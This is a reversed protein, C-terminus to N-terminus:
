YSQETHQSCFREGCRLPDAHSGMMASTRRCRVGLQTIGRCQVVRAPPGFIDYFDDDDDEDDDDEDDEDASDDSGGVSNGKFELGLYDGDALCHVNKTFEDFIGREKFGLRVVMEVEEPVVHTYMLPTFNMDAGRRMCLWEELVELLQAERRPRDGGDIVEFMQITPGGVEEEENYWSLLVKGIVANRAALLELLVNPIENETPGGTGATTRVRLGRNLVFMPAAYEVAHKLEVDGCLVCRDRMDEILEALGRMSRQATICMWVADCSGDNGGKHWIRLSRAGSATFVTGSPHRFPGCDEDDDDEDSDDEHCAHGRGTAADVASTRQRHTAPAAAAGVGWSKVGCFGTGFKTGRTCCMLDRVM